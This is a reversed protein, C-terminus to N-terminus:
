KDIRAGWHREMLAKANDFSLPHSVTIVSSRHWRFIADEEFNSDQLVIGGRDGHNWSVWYLGDGTIIADIMKQIVDEKTM